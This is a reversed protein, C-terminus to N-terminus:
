SALGHRASGVSIPQLFRLAALLRQQEDDSFRELLSAPLRAVEVPTAFRGRAATWFSCKAFRELWWRRWRLLTRRSVDLHESLREHRGPTVGHQLASLLVVVAGLFVHRGLFRVSAPTRRRRCGEVACCFSFRRDHQRGLGGPGGRPQRAYDSVHLRGRCRECGLAHEAAALERDIDLLLVHLSPDSILGHSM